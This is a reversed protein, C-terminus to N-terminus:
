GGDVVGVHAPSGFVEGVAVLRQSTGSKDHGVCGPASSAGPLM